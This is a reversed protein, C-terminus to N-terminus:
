APTSYPNLGYDNNGEAGWHNGKFFEYGFNDRVPSWVGLVLHNRLMWPFVFLFTVAAAVALGRRHAPIGGGGRHAVFIWFFPLLSLFAPNALAIIGWVVGLGVWSRTRSPDVFLAIDIALLLLFVSLSTDWVWTTSFWLAHPFLAWTWAAYLAFRRGWLRRC